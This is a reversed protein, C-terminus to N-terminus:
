KLLSWKLQDKATQLVQFFSIFLYDTPTSVLFIGMPVLFTVQIRSKVNGFEEPATYTKYPLQWLIM